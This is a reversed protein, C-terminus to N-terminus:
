AQLDQMDAQLTDIKWMADNGKVLTVYDSQNSGLSDQYKFTANARDGDINLSSYTCSAVGGIEWMSAFDQESVKGQYGLSFQAYATRYDSKKLASCFTDLTKSSTSTAANILIVMIIVAVILGCGGLTIRLWDLHRKQPQSSASVPVTPASSLSTDSM